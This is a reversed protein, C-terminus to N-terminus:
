KESNGEHVDLRAREIMEDIEQESLQAARRSVAAAALQLRERLLQRESELLQKYRHYNLIAVRPSGYREVIVDSGSLAQDMVEGFEQQVQTSKMHLVM